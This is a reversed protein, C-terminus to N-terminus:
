ACNFSKIDIFYYENWKEIRWVSIYGFNGSEQTSRAIKMENKNNHFKLLSIKIQIWANFEYKGSSEWGIIKTWEEGIWNMWTWEPDIRMMEKWERDNMDMGMWGPDIREIGAWKWDNTDMEMWEPDIREMGAWERDNLDMGRWKEGNSIMGRWEQEDGNMGWQIRDMEIWEQGSM